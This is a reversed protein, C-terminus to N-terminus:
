RVRLNMVSNVLDRWRVTDQVLLIWDGEVGIEWLDRRLNDEWRRRPRGPPRKGEPKGVLVRHVGRTGDMRAVHGACRWTAKILIIFYHTALLSMIAMIRYQRLEVQSYSTCQILIDQSYTIHIV